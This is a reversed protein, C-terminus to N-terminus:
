PLERPVLLLLLSCVACVGRFFLFLLLRVLFFVGFLPPPFAVYQCWLFFVLFGFGGFCLM